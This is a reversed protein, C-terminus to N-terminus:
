RTLRLASEYWLKFASHGESSLYNTCISEAKRVRGMEEQSIILDQHCPVLSSRNKLYRSYVRQFEDWLMHYLKEPIRKTELQRNQFDRALYYHSKGKVQSKQLVVIQKGYYGVSVVIAQESPAKAILQGGMFFGVFVAVLVSKGIPM